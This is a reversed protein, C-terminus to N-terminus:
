KRRMLAVMIMVVGIVNYMDAFNFNPWAGIAIFDRVYGLSLRDILNGFTGAFVLVLAFRMCKDKEQPYYYIIWVLVVVSVAMLLWTWGQMIGFAAGRNVVYEIGFGHSVFSKGEIWQKSLQDLMVLFFAALLQKVTSNM